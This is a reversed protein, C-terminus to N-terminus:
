RDAAISRLARRVPDAASAFRSSAAATMRKRRLGSPEAGPPPPHRDAEHLAALADLLRETAADIRPRQVSALDAVDEFPGRGERTWQDFDARQILKAAAFQDEFFTRAEDADIGRNTAQIVMRALLAAERDPDDIPKQATWKWRAVDHMLDLREVVRAILIADADDTAVEGEWSEGGAEFRALQSRAERLESRQALVLAGLLIAALVAAGQVFRGQRGTQFGTSAISENM